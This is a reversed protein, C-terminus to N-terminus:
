LIDPDKVFFLEIRALFSSIQGTKVQGTFTNTARDHRVRCGWPSYSVETWPINWALISSHTAMGKELPDEWGPISGPDETNCAPEKSQSGDPFGQEKGQM